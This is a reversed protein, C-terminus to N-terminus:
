TKIWWSVTAFAPITPVASGNGTSEATIGTVANNITIGVPSTGTNTTGTSGGATAGGGTGTDPVTHSHGTDTYTHHHGPDDIAHTHSPLQPITLTVSDAGGYAGVAHMGDLGRLVRGRFDPVNFTQSGDGAGWTVGLEAFLSAYQSRSVASGDCPLWPGGSPGSASTGAYEITAGTPTTAGGSAGGSRNWLTLFFQLWPITINFQTGAPVSVTGKADLIDQMASAIGQTPAPFNQGSIGGPSSM